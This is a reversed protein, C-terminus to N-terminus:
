GNDVCEILDPFEAALLKETQEREAIERDLQEPWGCAALARPTVVPERKLLTRTTAPRHVSRRASTSAVPQTTASVAVITNRLRRIRHDSM